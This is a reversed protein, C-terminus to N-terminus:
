SGGCGGGGCGGGGCSAGCSSGCSAGCSSGGDAHGHGADGHGHGHGADAPASACFVVPFAAMCGSSDAAGAKARAGFAARYMAKTDGFAARQPQSGKTLHPDHHMMRGFIAQCDAEYRRTDLIHEHWFDDMAETWPVVAKGPNSAVLFLFQRYESELRDVDHRRSWWWGKRRRLRRNVDALDLDLVQHWKASDLM